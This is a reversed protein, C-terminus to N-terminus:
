TPSTTREEREEGKPKSDIQYQEIKNHLSRVSIGLVEATRTRNHDYLKLAKTIANRELEHLKLGPYWYVDTM